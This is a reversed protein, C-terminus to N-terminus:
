TDCDSYSIHSVKYENKLQQALTHKFMVWEKISDCKIYFLCIQRAYAGLFAM